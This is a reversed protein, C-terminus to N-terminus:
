GKHQAEKIQIASRDVQYRFYSEGSFGGLTPANQTSFNSVEGHMEILQELLSAAKHAATDKKNADEAGDGDESKVEKEYTYASKSFTIFDIVEEAQAADILNLAAFCRIALM